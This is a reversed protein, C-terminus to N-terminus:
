CGAEPETESSTLAWIRSFTVFQSRALKAKTKIFTRNLTKKRKRGGELNLLEIATGKEGELHQASSPVMFNLGIGHLCVSFLSLVDVAVTLRTM